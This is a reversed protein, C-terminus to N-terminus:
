KVATVYKSNATIYGGAVKYRKTGSATHAYDWGKVTFVTGQQYAQVVKTLNVDEYRRIMTKARVYKITKPKSNLQQDESNTQDLVSDHTMESPKVYKAADARVSTSPSLINKQHSSMSWVFNWAVGVSIVIALALIGKYWKKM